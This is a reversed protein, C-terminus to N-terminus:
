LSVWWPCNIGIIGQRVLARSSIGRKMMVSFSPATVWFLTDIYNEFTTLQPSLFCYFSPSQNSSRQAYFLKIEIIPGAWLGSMEAWDEWKHLMTYSYQRSTSTVPNHFGKEQPEELSKRKGRRTTDSAHSTTERQGDRIKLLDINKWWWRM